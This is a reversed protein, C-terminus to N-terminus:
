PRYYWGVRHFDSLSPVSSSITQKLALITRAATFPDKTWWCTHISPHIYPHMSPHIYTHISQRISTHIYTDHWTVHIYIYISMYMYMCMDCIWDKMPISHHWTWHGSSPPNKAMVEGGAEPSRVANLIPFTWLVVLQKSIRWCLCIRWGVFTGFLHLRDSLSCSSLWCNLEWNWGWLKLFRRVLCFFLDSQEIINLNPTCSNGIKKMIRGQESNWPRLDQAGWTQCTGARLTPRLGERLACCRSAGLCQNWPDYSAPVPIWAHFEM